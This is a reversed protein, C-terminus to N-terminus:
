AMCRIMQCDGDDWADCFIGAPVLEGRGEPTGSDNLIVMPNNPNSRDIGIVEVAHNACDLGEADFPTFVNDKEGYWIEDADVSVIVREGRALSQEIDDLSNHFSMENKVGYYDLMKNMNLPATGGNESFWGNDKATKLYEGMDVNQGTLEEIVFRQSYLACRNTGGQCEWKGMSKEPDGTVKDMDSKSSDFNGLGFGATTEDASELIDTPMDGILVHQDGEAAPMRVGTQEYVGDSGEDVDVVKTHYHGTSDKDTLREHITLDPVGDEGTEASDFQITTDDMVGSGDTDHRQIVVDFKGTSDTDILIKQSDVFKDQNYDHSEIILDPVGDINRDLMTVSHDLIGNKDTDHIVTEGSEHPIIATHPMGNDDIDAMIMDAVGDHDLDAMVLDAIGDGTTDIPTIDAQSLDIETFDSM